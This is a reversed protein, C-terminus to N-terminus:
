VMTSLFLTQSGCQVQYSITNQELDLALPFNYIWFDAEEFALCPIPDPTTLPGSFYPPTNKAILLEDTAVKYDVYVSLKCNSQLTLLYACFNFV